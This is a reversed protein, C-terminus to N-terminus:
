KSKANIILKELFRIQDAFYANKKPYKLNLKRIIELAKSYRQQKVYIKALTETFYSEDDLIEDNEEEEPEKETLPEEFTPIEEALQPIVPEEESRHLFSDILEQGQLLSSSSSEEADAQNLLYASYDTTIELPVITPQVPEQKEEEPLTALFADILTLTRDLSADAEVTVQKELAQRSKVTVEADIHSIINWSSFGLKKLVEAELKRYKSDAMLKLIVIVAVVLLIFGM